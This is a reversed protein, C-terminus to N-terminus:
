IKRGKEATRHLVDDEETLGQKGKILSTRFYCENENSM